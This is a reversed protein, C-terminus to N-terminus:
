YGVNSINFNESAKHDNKWIQNPIRQAWFEEPFQLVISHYFNAIKVRFGRFWTLIKIYRVHAVTLTNTSLTHALSDCKSSQNMGQSLMSNKSVSWWYCPPRNSWDTWYGANLVMLEKGRAIILDFLLNVSYEIFWKYSSNTRCDVKEKYKRNVQLQHSVARAWLELLGLREYAGITETLDGRWKKKKKEKGINKTIITHCIFYFLFLSYIFIKEM